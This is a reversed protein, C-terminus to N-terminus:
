IREKRRGLEDKREEKGGKKVDPLFYHYFFAKGDKKKKGGRKGEKRPLKGRQSAGGPKKKKERGRVENSIPLSNRLVGQDGREGGERKTQKHSRGEASVFYRGGEGKKEVRM